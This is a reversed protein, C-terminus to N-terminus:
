SEDERNFARSRIALEARQRELGSKNSAIEILRAQIEPNGSAGLVLAAASGLSRDALTRFLMERVAPEDLLAPALHAIALAAKRDPGLSITHSLLDIRDAASLEVAASKLVRSLDPGSGKSIAQRLLDRDGSALATRATVHTLEPYKDLQILAAGSLVRSQEPSAMDLTDVYGRRAVPGAALYSMLWQDAPGQLLNEARSRAQHRDWRNQVGAAAARVNFLPVAMGPHDEHEVLVRAKYQSLFGLVERNVAGPDLDSLGLAFSFVLYDQAPAALDPDRGIAQLADLLETSSGTRAWQFLPKLRNQTDVRSIAQMAEARQWNPELMATQAFLHLSPALSLVLVLLRVIVAKM